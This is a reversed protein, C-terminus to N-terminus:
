ISNTYNHQLANWSLLLPSSDLSSCFYNSVKNPLYNLVTFAMIHNNRNTTHASTADNFNSNWATVVPQSALVLFKAAQSLRSWM